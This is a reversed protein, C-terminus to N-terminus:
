DNFIVGAHPTKQGLDELFASKMHSTRAISM